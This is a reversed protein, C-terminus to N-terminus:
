AITLNIVKTGDASTLTLVHTSSDYVASALYDSDIEAKTYYSSADSLDSVATPVAINVTVDSSANATFTNITTSNKQITLTANNAAAPITPTNSLDAYSGSTAVAALGLDCSVDVSANATFETGTDSSNKKITLKANNAAAPISPTGSLDAYSGSSAVAALNLDCTVDSGANATFQTGTDLSNKKITLVANNVTPITPKNLLDDYDGSTAVNALSAKSAYDQEIEAKTYYNSPDFIDTLPISIDQKGADTNFSIVLNSGVIAVSEVMGDVIFASADFYSLLTGESNKLQVYHTVPDYAVSAGLTLLDALTAYEEGGGTGISGFDDIGSALSIPIEIILGNNYSGNDDSEAYLLSEASDGEVKGWISITKWPKSNNTIKIGLKSNCVCSVGSLDVHSVCAVVEGASAGYWAPLKGILESRSTKEINQTVCVKTFVIEKEEEVARQLIQAAYNTLCKMCSM